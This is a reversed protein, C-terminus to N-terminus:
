CPNARNCDDDGDPNSIKIGGPCESVVISVLMRGSDMEYDCGCITCSIIEVIGYSINIPVCLEFTLVGRDPSMWSQSSIYRPCSLAAAGNVSSAAEAEVAPVETTEHGVEEAHAHEAPAFPTLMALLLGAAVGRRLRRRRPTTRSIALAARVGRFVASLPVLFSFLTFRFM